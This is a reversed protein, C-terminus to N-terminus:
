VPAPPPSTRDLKRLKRLSSLGGAICVLALAHFGMSMWDRVLLFVLGDLAYLVMGIIFAWSQRRHAFVGFTAFLLSAIVSLTLGIVAIGLDSALSQALLGAGLGIVFYRQSGTYMLVTNVLSLGAIWYFWGAGGRVSRSLKALTQADAGPAPPAAPPPSPQAAPQAASAPAASSAYLNDDSM